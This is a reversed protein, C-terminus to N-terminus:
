PRERRYLTKTEGRAGCRTCGEQGGEISLKPFGQAGPQVYRERPRDPHRKM